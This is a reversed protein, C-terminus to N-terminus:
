FNRNELQSNNDNFRNFKVLHKETDRLFLIIKVKKKLIHYKIKM